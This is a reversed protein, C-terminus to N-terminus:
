LLQIFDDLEKFYDSELAHLKSLIVSYFIGLILCTQCPEKQITTTRHLGNQM